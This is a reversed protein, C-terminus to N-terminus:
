KKQSNMYEVIGTDLVYRPARSRYERVNDATIAITTIPFPNDYPMKLAAKVINQLWYFGIESVFRDNGITCRFVSNPQELLDLVASTGDCSGVFMNTTNLGSQVVAEYAGVGLVDDFVLVMDTDPNAQLASEVASIAKPGDTAEVYVWTINGAGCRENVIDRWGRAREIASQMLSTELNIIKAKGGLRDKIWKSAEEGLKSGWAYENYNFYTAARVGETHPYYGLPIGADTAANITDRMTDISICQVIIGDVKRTIYNEVNTVQKEPEFDGGYTVILKLNTLNQFETYGTVLDVMFEHKM